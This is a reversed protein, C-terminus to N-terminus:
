FKYQIRLTFVNDKIDQTYGVINKSTENTVMDYYAVIKLNADWKYTWGLGITTFKIDQKNTKAFTKGAFALTSKGIDDGAADTNPDYWDYKVVLQHKTKGINQIFYFYAGNFNRTYADSNVTTTKVTYTGTATTTTVAQVSSSPQISPSSTSSSTGAQMGSIYEARVTTLGLPWDISFQFDVGTYNRQMIRGYNGTDKELMFSYLGASDENMSYIKSTGSGWGGGYYSAGLGYQIKENKTTRDARIRGIFDKQYDFDSAAGGTGNFMGADIKLFNLSSTKPAQLTLMAGLEREGPFIIQSMRGREPTERSSSSYSIEYGFPRDFVGATLSLSKMWPETLKLYADKIGVGKETVDIQLVYMTMNGNYTAKLRGRRVMFRKDVNSAFNGGAFSVAGASDAVQFQAQLYGSIKIKKLADLDSQLKLVSQALTDSPSQTEQASIPGAFLTIVMPLILVKLKKM